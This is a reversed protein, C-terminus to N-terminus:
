KMVTLHHKEAKLWLHIEYFDDGDLGDDSIQDLNFYYIRARYTGNSLKIRRAEPLYDTCGAVVIEGSCVEIDCENMQSVVNEDDTLVPPETEFIKVTVPVEGNRVTGVAIIGQSIALLREVANTNWIDSTDGAAGEDQIYFQCYDAFLQLKIESNM